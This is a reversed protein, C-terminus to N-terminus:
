VNDILSYLNKIEDENTVKKGCLNSSLRKRLADDTLMSALAECLAEPASKAILGESGNEIQDAATSYDALLIPKKLVCAEDVAIAKGEFRSPQFYIDCESLYPYPNAKEGLFVVNDSINLEAALAELSEKEPGIGIIYWKFDIGDGKFNNLKGKLQSIAEMGIDLGKQYSLRAITLIRRGNFKDDFGPAAARSEISNQSIINYIVHHKGANEPFVDDLSSKCIDSVTCLADLRKFYRSDFEKEMEMAKYDGHIFGIKRKSRVFDVAYYLPQGEMFAIAADYEKEPARLLKKEAGYIKEFRKGLTGRRSVVTIWLRVFATKVFGKKILKFFAKIINLKYEPPLLAPLLNVQKPLDKLFLGEHVFLQLDVEYKQYDFLELLTILSKEIGGSHLSYNIFLIKKREM